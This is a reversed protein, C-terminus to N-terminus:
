RLAEGNGMVFRVTHENNSRSQGGQNRGNGRFNGRRNGFRNGSHGSNSNNSQANSNDSNGRNFSKFKAGRGRQFNKNGFNKRDNSHSSAEAREQKFANEQVIMKSVVESATKFNGMALIGRVTENKCNKRCLEITKDVTLRSAHERNYGEFILSTRFKDALENVSKAFSTLGFKETKLALMRGEIVKSPEHKVKEKLIRVIEDVSDIEAPMHERAKGGIRSLIFKKLTPKNGDECIEQLLEISALFTELESAEGMFADPIQQAAIHVLEGKTQAMERNLTSSVTQSINNQNSLNIIPETRDVFIPQSFQINSAQESIHASETDTTSAKASEANPPRSDTTSDDSDSSQSSQSSQGIEEKFKALDAVIPSFINQPWDYELQIIAFCQKLRRISRRIRDDFAERNEPGSISYFDCIYSLLDNFKEILERRYSNLKEQDKTLPRGQSEYVEVRKLVTDLEYILRNYTEPEFVSSM